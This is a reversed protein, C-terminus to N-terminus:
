EEEYVEYDKSVDVVGTCNREIECASAAREFALTYYDDGYPDYPKEYYKLWIYCADVITDADRIMYDMDSFEDSTLLNVVFATQMEPDGINFRYGDGPGGPAFWQEAFQYLDRKKEYATYQAYGYGGDTNVWQDNENYYGNTDDRNRSELFDKKDIVKENVKKTYADDDISWLDNNYDELNGAEFRSEAKLNCMVGIVAVKNDHFHEMLHDWLMRDESTGDYTKYEKETVPTVSGTAEGAKGDLIGSKRLHTGPLIWEFFLFSLVLVVAIATFLRRYRLFYKLGKDKKVMALRNQERIKAENLLKVVRDEEPAREKGALLENRRALLREYHETRKRYNAEAKKVQTEYEPPM